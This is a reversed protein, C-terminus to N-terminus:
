CSFTKGIEPTGPNAQEVLSALSGDKEISNRPALDLAPASQPLSIREGGEKEVNNNIHELLHEELSRSCAQEKVGKDIVERAM